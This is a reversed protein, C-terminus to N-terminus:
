TAAAAVVAIDRLLLGGATRDLDAHGGAGRNLDEIGARTHRRMHPFFDELSKARGLALRSPAPKSQRNHPADHARQL